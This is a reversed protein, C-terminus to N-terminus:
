VGTVERLDYHQFSSADGREAPHCYQRLADVISAM